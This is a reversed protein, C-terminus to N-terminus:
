PKLYCMGSVEDGMWNILISFSEAELDSAKQDSYFSTAGDMNALNKSKGPDLDLDFTNAKIMTLICKDPKGKSPQDVQQAETYFSSVMLISHPAPMSLVDQFSVIQYGLTQLNREIRGRILKSKSSSASWDIIKGTQDHLATLKEKPKGAEVTTNTMAAVMAIGRTNQDIDNQMRRDAAQFDNRISNDAAIRAVKETDINGQLVGEATTARTVETNLQGKNVADTPATGDAVGTIKAGNNDIGNTSTNGGVTLNGGSTAPAGPTFFGAPTASSGDPNTANQVATIQAPSLIPDGNNDTATVPGVGALDSLVSVLRSADRVTAVNEASNPLTTGNPYFQGAPGYTGAVDTYGAPNSVKLERTEISYTATDTQTTQQNLTVNGNPNIVM